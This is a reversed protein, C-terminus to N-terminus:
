KKRYIHERMLDKIVLRLGTFLSMVYKTCDMDSGIPMGVDVSCEKVLQAARDDKVGFTPAVKKFCECVSQRDAKSAAEKNLARAGECCAWTVDGSGRLYSECPLLKIVAEQCTIAKVPRAILALCFLGLVWM